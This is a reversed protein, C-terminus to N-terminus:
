HYKIAVKLRHVLDEYYPTNKQKSQSRMCAKFLMSHCKPLLQDLAVISHSESIIFFYPLQLPILPPFDLSKLLNNFCSLNQIQSLSWGAEYSELYSRLNAQTSSNFTQLPSARICLFIIHENLKSMVLKQMKYIFGPTSQGSQSSVPCLEAASWFSQRRCPCLSAKNTDAWYWLWASVSM